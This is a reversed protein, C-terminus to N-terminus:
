KTKWQLFDVVYLMHQISVLFNKSYTTGNKWSLTDIKYLVLLFHSLWLQWEVSQLDSWSQSHYLLVLHVIRFVLVAQTQLLLPSLDVHLVFIFMVTDVRYICNSLASFGLHANQSKVLLYLQKSYGHLCHTHFLNACVCMCVCTDVSVTLPRLSSNTCVINGLWGIPWVM